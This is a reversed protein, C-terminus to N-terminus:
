STRGIIKIMVYDNDVSTMHMICKHMQIIQIDNRHARKYAYDLEM